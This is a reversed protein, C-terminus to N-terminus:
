AHGGASTEDRLEQARALAEEVSVGARAVLWCSIPAATRESAHAALGALELLATIEEAAPPEIGLHSAFRDIWESGSLAM